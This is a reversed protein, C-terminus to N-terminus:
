KPEAPRSGPLLQAVEQPLGAVAGGDTLFKCSPQAGFAFTSAGGAAQFVLVNRPSGIGCGRTNGIPPPANVAESLRAVQGADTVTALPEPALTHVAGTERGEIVCLLVSSVEGPVTSLADNENATRSLASDDEPCALAASPAVPREAISPTARSASPQADSSCGLLSSGALLVLGISVRRMSMLRLM